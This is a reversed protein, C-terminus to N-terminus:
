GVAAAETTTADVPAGEAAACASCLGTIQLQNEDLQFAHARCIEGLMAAITPSVFEVIRGCRRCAIHDHRLGPHLHEYVRRGGVRVRSVLGCEVLLELNRYVTARSISQGSARVADLTQDADIHDHQAFIERVLARREPTMRFGRARLHDAFLSEERLATMKKLRLRLM